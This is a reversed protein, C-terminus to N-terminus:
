SSPNFYSHSLVDSITPRSSAEGLMAKILKFIRKNGNAVGTLREVTLKMPKKKRIRSVRKEPYSGHPHSGGSLSYAIVCGLPFIDSAFTKSADALAAWGQNDDERDLHSTLGFDTLKVQAQLAGKPSSFLVNSPKLNGHIINLLQLHEVAQCVQKLIHQLDGIEPGEYMGLVFDVLSGISFETVIYSYSFPVFHNNSDFFVLSYLLCM